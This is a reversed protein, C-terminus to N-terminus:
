FPPKHLQELQQRELPRFDNALSTMSRNYEFLICVAKELSTPKISKQLVKQRCHIVFGSGSCSIKMLRLYYFTKLWQSCLRSAGAHINGETAGNKGKMLDPQFLSFILLFLFSSLDSELSVCCSVVLLPHLTSAISEPVIVEVMQQKYDCNESPTM